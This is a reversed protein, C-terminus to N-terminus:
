QVGKELQTITRTETHGSSYLWMLTGQAVTDSDNEGASKGGRRVDYVMNEGLLLLRVRPM